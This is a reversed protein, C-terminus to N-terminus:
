KSTKAFKSYPVPLKKEMKSDSDGLIPLGDKGLPLYIVRLNPNEMAKLQIYKTTIQANVIRLSEAEAKAKIIKLEADQLANMKDIENRKKASIMEHKMSDAEQEKVLKKQIAETIINDYSITEINISEIEFYKATTKRALITRIENEINEFNKSIQRMPYDKFVNKIAGRFDQSVVNTYYDLGIDAHLNYMQSPIVSIRITAKVGIKLDDKTHVELQEEYNKPQISYNYRIMKDIAYNQYHNYSENNVNGSYRDNILSFKSPYLNNSKCDSCQDTPQSETKQILRVSGDECYMGMFIFILGVWKSNLKKM